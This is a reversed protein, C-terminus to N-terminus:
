AGVGRELLEARDQVLERGLERRRGGFEAHAERVRRAAAGCRSRRRSPPRPGLRRDGVGLRGHRHPGHKRVEPEVRVPAEGTGGPEVIFIAERVRQRPLGDLPGLRPTGSSGGAEPTKPERCSGRDPAARSFKSPSTDTSLILVRPRKIADTKSMCAFCLGNVLWLKSPTLHGSPDDMRAGTAAM